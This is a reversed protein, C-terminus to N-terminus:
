WGLNEYVPNKYQEIDIINAINYDIMYAGDGMSHSVM